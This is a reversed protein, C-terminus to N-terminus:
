NAVGALKSLTSANDRLWRIKRQVMKLFALGEINAFVGQAAIPIAAEAILAQMMLYPITAAEQATIENDPVDNYSDLFNQYRELDPKAPWQDIQDSGMGEISFQLAGNAIDLVRPLRRAADYDIVALVEDNFFLLNGPHWDSHAIQVPWESVGMQGTTKAARKYNRTLSNCVADIRVPDQDPSVFKLTEGMKDLAKLVTSSRHYSGRPPQVAPEYDKLLKHFLSLTRGAQGTAELSQPNYGTGRIYEFLEYAGTKLHLSTGGERTTVLHPMPFGRDSLHAQVGHCFAVKEPEDKGRARRKLLYVQDETRILLKPAKRSGRPFSKIKLVSGIDYHSLAMTLEFTDFMQRGSADTLPQGTPDEFYGLAPDALSSGAAQLAAEPLPEPVVESSPTQIGIEDLTESM